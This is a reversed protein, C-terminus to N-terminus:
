RGAMARAQRWAAYLLPTLIVAFLTNPGAAPVFEGIFATAFSYGNVIIDAM